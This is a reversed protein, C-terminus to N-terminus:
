STDCRLPATPAHRRPSAPFIREIIHMAGGCDPCIRGVDIADKDSPGANLTNEPKLGENLLLARCSAIKAARHGNAMFGFYRIRHFGDPLTHLLFRRIFEDPKLRMIKEAGNQRYDKWTFAVHDDDLAKIRSNAIAVRHTTAASIPSFGPSDASRSRPTSWGTSAVCPKFMPPSHTEIPLSADPQHLIGLMRADFAAQLRELFCVGSCGPSHNSPSFLLEAAGCGMTDWRILSRRGARRLPRASSPDLGAGLYTSGRPWRDKAGLRRPNAALATMADAAAKFLITYVITKNQFAIEAIPAPLTFVLHFYPVPLLEAQRDTLWKTRAQGQCKPCHRNRCSNYAIRTAGCDDCAEVHGGLIATRCATIASMVRREVRGLHAAHVRAYDQGHLRLIDAIEIVSRNPHFGARAM